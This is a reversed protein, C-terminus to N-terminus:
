FYVLVQRQGHIWIVATHNKHKKCGTECLNKQQQLFVMSQAFLVQKLFPGSHFYRAEVKLLRSVGSKLPAPPCCNKM